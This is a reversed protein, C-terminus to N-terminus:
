EVLEVVLREPLEGLRRAALEARTREVFLLPPRERGLQRVDVDLVACLRQGLGRGRVLVLEAALGTSQVVQAHRRLRRKIDHVYQAIGIEDIPSADDHLLREAGVQRAGLREVGLQVLDKGLVLDEADVVEEALLRREVDQREAEGVSEELRDPVAVEDVVHLDVHWLRERDFTTGPEVLAGARELVHDDRM